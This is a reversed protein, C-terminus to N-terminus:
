QSLIEERSLDEFMKATENDPNEVLIEKIEKQGLEENGILIYALARNLRNSQFNDDENNDLRKTFIEIGKQYYNRAKLSDNTKDYFMGTGVWIEALEPEVKLYKESVVIAKEILGETAYLSRLNHHASKLNPDLKIANEFYVIASDNQFDMMFTVGKDNLEIAKENNRTTSNCALLFLFMLISLITNRIM